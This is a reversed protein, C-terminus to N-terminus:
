DRDAILKYSTHERHNKMGCEANRMGCEANRMQLFAEIVIDSDIAVALQQQEESTDFRAQEYLQAALALAMDYSADDDLSDAAQRVVDDTSENLRDLIHHALASHEMGKKYLNGINGVHRALYCQGFHLLKYPVGDHEEQLERRPELGNERLYDLVWPDEPDAQQQNFYFKYRVMLIGNPESEVIM